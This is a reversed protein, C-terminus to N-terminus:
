KYNGNDDFAKDLARSTPIISLILVILQVVSLLGGYLGIMNKSWGITLWNVVVSVLLLLIGWIFWIKGSHKQAFQWTNENIMSKETRYGSLQNVKKSPKIWRFLGFVVMVSPILLTCVCMFIWFNM